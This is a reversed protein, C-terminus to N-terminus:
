DGDKYITLSFKVGSSLKQFVAQFIGLGCLIMSERAVVEAVASKENSFIIRTTIDGNEIDEKLTNKVLAKISSDTLIYNM